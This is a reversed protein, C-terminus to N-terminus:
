LTYRWCGIFPIFLSCLTLCDLGVFPFYFFCHFVSFFFCFLIWVKRVTKTFARTNAFTRRICQFFVDFLILVMKFLGHPYWDPTEPIRPTKTRREIPKDINRKWFASTHKAVHMRHCSHFEHLFFCFPEPSMAWCICIIDRYRHRYRCRYRYRYGFVFCM